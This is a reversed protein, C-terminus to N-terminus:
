ARTRDPFRLGHATMGEIHLKGIVAQLEDKDDEARCVIPAPLGPATWEAQWRTNPGPTATVTLTHGDNRGIYAHNGDGRFHLHWVFGPPSAHAVVIHPPLDGGAGYTKTKPFFSLDEGHRAALVEVQVEPPLYGTWPAFPARKAITKGLATRLHKVSELRVGPSPNTPAAPHLTADATWGNVDVSIDGGTKSYFRILPAALIDLRAALIDLRAIPFGNDDQHLQWATNRFIDAALANIFLPLNTM